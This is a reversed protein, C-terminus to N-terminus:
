VLCFGLASEVGKGNESGGFRSVKHYSEELSTAWEETFEEWEDPSFLEVRRTKPIPIGSAVHEAAYLGKKPNPSLARLNHKETM